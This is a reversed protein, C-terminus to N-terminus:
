QTEVNRDFAPTNRWKEVATWRTLKTREKSFRTPLDYTYIINTALATEFRRSTGIAVITDVTPLGNFIFLFAPLFREEQSESDTEYMIIIDDVYVNM